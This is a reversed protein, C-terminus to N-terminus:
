RKVHLKCEGWFQLSMLYAIANFLWPAKLGVYSFCSLVFIFCITKNHIKTSPIKHIFNPHAKMFSVFYLLILIFLCVKSGKPLTHFNPQRVKQPSIQGGLFFCKLCLQPVQLMEFCKPYNLLSSLNAICCQHCPTPLKAIHTTSM